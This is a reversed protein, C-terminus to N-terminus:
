ILASSAAVNIMDAPTTCGPESCCFFIAASALMALEARMALPPTPTVVGSGSGAFTSYSVRRLRLREGSNWADSGHRRRDAQHRRSRGQLPWLAVPLGLQQQRALIVFRRSATSQSGPR